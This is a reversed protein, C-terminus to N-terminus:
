NHARRGAPAQKLSRPKQSKSHEDKSSCVKMHSASKQNIRNRIDNLFHRSLPVLFSAHNLLGMLTELEKLTMERKTIAADLDGLWAQYKDSPPASSPRPTDEHESAV